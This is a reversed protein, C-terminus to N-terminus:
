EIQQVSKLKLSIISYLTLYNHLFKRKFYKQVKIIAQIQENKTFKELKQQEVEEILIQNMFNILRDKNKLIEFNIIYQFIDMKRIIDEQFTQEMKKQLLTYNDGHIQSLEQKLDDQTFEQNSNLNKIQKIWIFQTAVHFANVNIQGKSIMHVERYLEAIQGSSLSFNSSVFDQFKKFTIPPNPFVSFLQKYRQNRDARFIELLLQLVYGTQVLINNNVIISAQKLSKLIMNQNQKNLKSLFLLIITEAKEIKIYNVLEYIADFQQIWVGKILYRIHLYFYLEEKTYIDNLFHRFQVIEWVKDFSPIMLQIYFRNIYEQALLKNDKPIIQIEHKELCFTSLWSFVYSQFSMSYEKQMEQYMGDMIARLTGMFNASMQQNEIQHSLIDLTSKDLFLSFHPYNFRLLSIDFQDEQKIQSNKNNQDLSSSVLYRFFAQESELPKTIQAIQVEEYDMRSQFPPEIEKSRKVTLHDIRNQLVKIIDEFLTIKNLKQLISYKYSILDEKSMQFLEYYKQKQEKLCQVEFQYNKIQDEQVQVQMQLEKIISIQMKDQRKAFILQQKLEMVIQDNETQIVQQEEIIQTQEQIQKKILPKIVSEKDKIEKLNNSLIEVTRQLQLNRLVYQNKDQITLKSQKIQDKELLLQTYEKLKLEKDEKYKSYQDELDQIKCQLEDFYKLCSQMIKVFQSTITDVRIDDFMGLLFFYHQVKEKVSPFRVSIQNILQQYKQQEYKDYSGQRFSNNIPKLMRPTQAFGKESDFIKKM